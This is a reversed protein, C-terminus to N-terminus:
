HADSRRLHPELLVREIVKPDIDHAKLYEIASMTSRNEQVAIGRNVIDRRALDARQYSAEAVATDGHHHDHNMHGDKSTILFQAPSHPMCRVQKIGLSYGVIFKLTLTLSEDDASYIRFAQLGSAHL